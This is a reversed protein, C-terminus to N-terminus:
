RPQMGQLAMSVLGEVIQDQSYELTIPDRLVQRRIVMNMVSGMVLETALRPDTKCLQGSEMKAALYGEMFSGGQSINATVLPTIEPHHIAESLYLKLLPLFKGDEMGILMQRIVFRFFEEPSLALIQEPIERAVRSPSREELIAKLLAEKSEFYHYILGPTISAERAIDKNSAEAFGKKAFVRLAAEMIQERRDEVTKVTRAM